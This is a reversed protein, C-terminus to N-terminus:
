IMVACAVYEGNRGVMIWFWGLKLDSDECGVTASILATAIRKNGADGM